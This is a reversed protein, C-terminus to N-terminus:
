SGKESSILYPKTYDKDILSINDIITQKKKLRNQQSPMFGIQINNLQTEMTDRFSATKVPQRHIEKSGLPAPKRSKERYKM